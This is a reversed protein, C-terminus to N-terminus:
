LPKDAPTATPESSRAGPMLRKLQALSIANSNGLAEIMEVYRTMDEQRVLGIYEGLEDVVVVCRLASAPVASILAAADCDAEFAPLNGTRSMIVSISTNEADSQHVRAVDVDSVLGALREGFMVAIVRSSAGGRLVAAGAAVSDSTQLVPVDRACLDKVTLGELATRMIIARYASEALGALLWGILVVWMGAIVNVDGRLLLWVGAGAIVYAFAKGATAARRTAAVVNGSFRWLLGRLVMGGDMPYGPIANIAFLLANASALNLLLLAAQA